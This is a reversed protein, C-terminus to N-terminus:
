EVARMQRRPPQGRRERGFLALSGIVRPPQHLLDVRHQVLRDLGAARRQAVMALGRALEAIELMGELDVVALALFALGRAAATGDAAEVLIAARGEPAWLALLLDISVGTM